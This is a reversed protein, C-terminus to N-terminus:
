NVSCQLSKLERVGRSTKIRGRKEESGASKRWKEEIETYLQMTRDEFGDFSVWFNVSVM